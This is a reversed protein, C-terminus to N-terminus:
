EQEGEQTENHKETMTDKTLVFDHFIKQQLRDTHGHKLHCKDDHIM